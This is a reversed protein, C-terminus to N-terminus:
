ISQTASLMHLNSPHFTAPLGVHELLRAFRPDSRL